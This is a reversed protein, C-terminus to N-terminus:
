STRKWLKITTGENTTITDTQQWTTGSYSSAPSTQSMIYSNIPPYAESIREDFVNDIQGPIDQESIQSSVENPITVRIVNSLTQRIAEIEADIDETSERSQRKIAQSSSWALQKFNTNCKRAITSTDDNPSLNIIEMGNRELVHAM